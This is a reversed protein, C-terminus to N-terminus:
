FLVSNFDYNYVDKRLKDLVDIYNSKTLQNKNAAIDSFIQSNLYPKFHLNDKFNDYNAAIKLDNAFYFLKVNNYELLKSFLHKYAYIKADVLGWQMYNAWYTICKYPVFFVFQTDSYQKLLPEINNEINQDLTETYYDIDKTQAYASKKFFSLVVDKGYVADNGNVDGTLVPVNKKGIFTNFLDKFTYNYLIEINLLYNLDNFKNNDYLYDPISHALQTYETTFVTDDLGWLVTKIKNHSDFAVDLIKKMNLTTGGPFILKVSNCSFCNNIDDLSSNEVLSTGVLATDYDYNKAIGPNIYDYDYSMYTIKSNIKRYQVVPDVVFNIAGVALVLCLVVCIFSICWKKM